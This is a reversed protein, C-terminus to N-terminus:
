ESLGCEQLVEELKTEFAESELRKKKDPEIQNLHRGTTTSWSNERCVNEGKYDFAVITKYSFYLCLNGIEVYRSNGYNDSSYNGYNGISVKSKVM